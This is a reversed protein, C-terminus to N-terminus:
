AQSAPSVSSRLTVQTSRGVLWQGIHDRGCSSAAIMPSTAFPAGPAQRPAGGSRCGVRNTAGADGPDPRAFCCGGLRRPESSDLRHTAQRRAKVVVAFSAPPRPSSLRQRVARRLRAAAAFHFWLRQVPATACCSRVGATQRPLSPAFGGSDVREFDDTGHAAPRRDPGDRKPGTTRDGGAPPLPPAGNPGCEHGASCTATPKMTRAPLSTSATVMFHAGTVLRATLTAPMRAVVPETVSIAVAPLGDPPVGFSRDQAAPETTVDTSPVNVPEILAIARSTCASRRRGL